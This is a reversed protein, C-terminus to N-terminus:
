EVRVTVVQQGNLVADVGVSGLPVASEGSLSMAHNEKMPEMVNAM